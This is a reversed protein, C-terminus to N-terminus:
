KMKPQYTPQVPRCSHVKVFTPNGLRRPSTYKCVCFWPSLRERSIGNKFTARVVIVIIIFVVISVQSLIVTQSPFSLFSKEDSYPLKKCPFINKMFPSIKQTKPRGCGKSRFVFISNSLSKWRQIDTKPPNSHM